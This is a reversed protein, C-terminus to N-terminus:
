PYMSYVWVALLALIGLVPVVLIGCVKMDRDFRPWQFNNRFRFWQRRQSRNVRRRFPPRTPGAMKGIELKSQTQSNLQELLQTTDTNLLACQRTSHPLSSSGTATEEYSAPASCLCKPSEMKPVQAENVASVHDPSKRERTRENEREKKM